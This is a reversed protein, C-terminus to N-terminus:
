LFVDLSVNWSEHFFFVVLCLVIICSEYILITNESFSIITILFNLLCELFHVSSWSYAWFSKCHDLFNDRVIIEIIVNITIIKLYIWKIKLNIIVCHFSNKLIEMGQNVLQLKLTEMEERQIRPFKLLHRIDQPDTKIGFYYIYSRVNSFIIRLSNPNVTKSNEIWEQLIDYLTDTYEEENQKKIILLERCL